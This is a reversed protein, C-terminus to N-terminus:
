YRKGANGVEDAIMVCFSRCSDPVSAEMRTDYCIKERDEVAKQIKKQPFVCYITYSGGM